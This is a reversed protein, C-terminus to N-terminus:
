CGENRCLWIRVFPACIKRYRYRFRYSGDPLYAKTITITITLYYKLSNTFIQQSKMEVSALLIPTKRKADGESRM